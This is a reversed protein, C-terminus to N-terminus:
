IDHPDGPWCVSLLCMGVDVLATYTSSCSLVLQLRRGMRLCAGPAVAAAEVQEPQRVGAMCEICEEYQHQVAAEGERQQQRWCCGDSCHM